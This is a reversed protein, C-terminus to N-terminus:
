LIDYWALAIVRLDRIRPPFAQNTSSGVLKISFYKFEELNDVSFEYDRFILENSAFGFVDSKPVQIDSTGDSLSDDITQGLNNKNNYGPFPYYIQEDNPDNQISYLARLDSATNVYAAVIIKISTAPAELQISKTAYVFSSPDSELTSVRNDTAYNDIRSNIRNTTFIVGVRDMDIMPSIYPSSSALDITMTFSKNGPLGSLLNTENEKSCILRPSNLYNNKDISIEEFGKDIFSQETGDVSTGSVTRIRSKLSTGNLVQTQVVPRLIEYQINQTATIVEGGTSKTENIFLKPFSTGVSRDVQGNPLPDTKGDQGMDIKVTYYDFGIPDTVTADQLTHSTNIRRLSVGNLEYKMVSTGTVYSASLTQDIQRTIDTLSTATVGEYSIIERGVLVYGPNTTGVGVNEFTTFNNTNDIFLETTATRSYDATLRVEKTDSSVNSIVVSNELAHMGHNKHNVKIHLGDSVTRIGDSAILVNGGISSNLDTRIGSSNIYQVTKGIGTQFDGQVNDIILENTGAIGVLSLKLNRGLSQTGIQSVSLVDGIEYGRGGANITAAIAVGNQITINATANSGNGTLSELSVGTYTLQGSSPTYGIGSNIIGLTGTASGASGVYNGSANSGQQVITNGLRLGSDQVTTGLGVRIVKSVMELSNPVLQPIHNNGINLESNYFNITGSTQNFNARYLTFKLDEFGDETWTDANQSKFLGGSLPQKSVLIQQSEGAGATRVDVEGLRSIWVNYNNSNSLLVISHFKGGSLYVPSQFTVRTPVSSDSSIEIDKPDLVVESFPYVEQTPVGLEMPRLQVTLPLQDDKSYFYLDVSTAYVGSEPEIYFSQALPDLVRM